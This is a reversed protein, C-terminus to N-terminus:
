FPKFFHSTGFSFGRRHYPGWGWAYDLRIMFSYIKPSLIRLGVGTGVIATTKDLQSLEQTITAYDTFLIHQLVIWRNKLSPIRYEISGKTYAHGRFEGNLFGRVGNLGGIYYLSHFNSGSNIAGSLDFCLNAELPLLKYWQGHLSLQTYPSGNIEFSQSIASAVGWGNYNFPLYKFGSYRINISSNITVDEGSFSVGSSDNLESYDIAGLKELYSDSNVSIAGGLYLDEVRFPFQMGYSGGVRSIIFGSELAGEPTYWNNIGKVSYLRSNLSFLTKGLDDKVFYLSGNHTGSFYHYEGGLTADRGLFNADYLGIRLSLLETSGSINLYPIITWKEDVVISVTDDSAEIKVSAFIDSKMLREKAVNLTSDSYNSGVKLRSVTLITREKTRRNGEFKFASIQTAYLRCLAIFLLNLLLKHM